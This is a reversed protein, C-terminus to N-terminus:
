TKEDTKRKIPTFLLYNPDHPDLEVGYVSVWHGEDLIYKTGGIIKTEPNNKM